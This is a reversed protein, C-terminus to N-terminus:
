ARLLALATSPMLAGAMSKLLSSSRLMLTPDPVNSALLSSAPLYRHKTGIALDTEIKLHDGCRKNREPLGPIAAAAFFLLSCSEPSINAM